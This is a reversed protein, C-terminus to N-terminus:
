KARRAARMARMQYGAAFVLVFAVTGVMITPVLGFPWGGGPSPPLGVVLQGNMTVWHGSFMCVYPYRGLTPPITFNVVWTTQPPVWVDIVKPHSANFDVMGQFANLPAIVNAESYLTFSHVMSAENILTLSVNQGPGVVLEAPTFTIARTMTVTLNVTGVDSARVTPSAGGARGVLASAAVPTTLLLLVALLIPGAGLGEGQSSM